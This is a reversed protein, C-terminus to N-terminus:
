CLRTKSVITRRNFFSRKRSLHIRSYALCCPTFGCKDKYTDGIRSTFWDPVNPLKFTCHITGMGNCHDAATFECDPGLSTDWAPVADSLLAGILMWPAHTSYLLGTVTDPPLIPLFRDFDIDFNTFPVQPM